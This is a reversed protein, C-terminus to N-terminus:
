VSLEYNSLFDKIRKEHLEKFDDQPNDIISQMIHLATILEQEKKVLSDIAKWQDKPTTTIKKTDFM